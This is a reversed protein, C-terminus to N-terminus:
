EAEDDDDDNNNELVLEAEAVRGTTPQANDDGHRSDPHKETSSPGRSTEDVTGEGREQV